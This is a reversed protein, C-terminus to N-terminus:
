GKKAEDDVPKGDKKGAVLTYKGELKPAEGKKDQARAAVGVTALLGLGLALTAITKM